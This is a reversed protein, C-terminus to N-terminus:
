MLHLIIFFLIKSKSMSVKLMSFKYTISRLWTLNVSSTLIAIGFFISLVVSKLWFDEDAFFIRFFYIKLKASRSRFWCHLVQFLHCNQTFYLFSSFCFEPVYQPEWGEQLYLYAQPRELNGWQVRWTQLCAVSVSLLFTFLKKIGM